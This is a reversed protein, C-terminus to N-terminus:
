MFFYRLKVGFSRGPKQLSYNDYLRQNTFNRAELAINYRGSKMAYSATFDHSLQGEITHKTNVDGLSPWERYFSHVYNLNYGITLLDTPEQIGQFRAEIEGNGYLYPQNPVRDNYTASLQKDGYNTYLEKNILSQYTLTGGASLFRKYYYRGEFNLGLNQVKGHNVNQAEGTRQVITRRIFDQVDRYLGSANIYIAHNENFDKQYSAGINVGNSREPRLEANARELLADGLIESDSPMRLAKEYSIKYQFDKWFYTTAVGYGFASAEASVRKWTPFSESEGANVVGSTKQKYHKGFVTSVWQKNYNFKYSLGAVNKYNNAKDEPKSYEDKIAVNDANKREYTSWNDNFSFSHQSSIKYILNLSAVANDNYFKALSRNGEGVNKTERYEGLWNYERSATDINQNYNHNYNATLIVDLGETLLDRKSYTLSPMVTNGNRSKEGYVIKMTNANQIDSYEKGLTVGILFQDAWSTNVFGTKLIATENHYKNHFAKTWVSDMTFNSATFDKIQTYVPYNNDSYNQFANLQITFGNKAAYGVNINTKHTNFSGYSYSVDAYSKNRKNTIINIAGGLADSGLEIPVVGKYIEIREALNVPINNLQFASGMGQMPVGDIFVKVHRGSFGNLNVSTASGLGGNQRIKVGSARNLLDSLEMSSNHFKTADLVAVNYPTERVEQIASKGTVVVQEIATKPDTKLVFRQNKNEGKNVSVKAKQTIFGVASSMIEYEGSEVVLVYHGDKDVQTSYSTNLIYVTAGTVVNGDQDKVYGIIKAANRQHNQSFLSTSNFLLLFLLSVGIVQKMGSLDIKM